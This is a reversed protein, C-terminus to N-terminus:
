EGTTWAEKKSHYRKKKKWMCIAGQAGQAGRQKCTCTKDPTEDTGMM